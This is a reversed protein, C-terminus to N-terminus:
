RESKHINANFLKMLRSKKRAATNRKIVKHQAAKDLTKITQKVLDGTKEGKAEIEKRSKKILTKINDLVQKNRLARKKSKRLEKMASKKIPM